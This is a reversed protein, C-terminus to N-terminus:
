RVEPHGQDTTGPEPRRHVAHCLLLHWARLRRRHDARHPSSAAAEGGPGRGPPVAQTTPPGDGRGGDLGQHGCAPRAFDPRGRLRDGHRGPRARPRDSLGRLRPHRRGRRVRDPQQGRHPNEPSRRAVPHEALLKEPDPPHGAEVSARYADYVLTAEIDEPDSADGEELNPGDDLNMVTGTVKRRTSKAARMLLMRSAKESRGM